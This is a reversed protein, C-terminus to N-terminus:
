AEGTEVLSFSKSTNVDMAELTESALMERMGGKQTLRGDGGRSWPM